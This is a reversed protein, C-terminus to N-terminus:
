RGGAVAPSASFGGGADHQWLERGTALDLSYLRGDSSGVFVRNGVIVPSSDVRGRTSYSWRREGTAVNLAEVQKNRGGIVVTGGRVAPSSRYSLRRQPHQYSWIIKPERWDIALVQGGETGFFVHDGSIAATALTPHGIDLTALSGGAAVDLIHLQGDCGCVFARDGALTPSCQIGGSAEITYRWIVQGDAAGFRYLTGDQSGVLVSKQYWNGSSNIEAATEHKWVLEGSAANWCYFVGDSDGVFVQGDGVAAAATFGTPSVFSWRPKGTALDIAYFHRDTDGVYVTRDAIVATALFSSEEAKFQWLLDLQVPLGSAAVGSGSSDGRFVPWDAPQPGNRVGEAAGAGSPIMGVVLFIAWSSRLALIPFTQCM